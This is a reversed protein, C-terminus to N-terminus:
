SGGALANMEAALQNFRDADDPHQLALQEYARAAERYQKQSAYIRALTESVMGEIDDELDPPPVDEIIPFGYHASGDPCSIAFSPFVDPTFRQPRPPKVWGMVQRTVTLEVGLDRAWAGQTFIIHKAGYNGTETRVKGDTVSLVPENAHLEAGHQQALEACTEVVREPVLLGANPEYLGIFDEPLRFQPYNEAIQAHSLVEHPLDHDGASQISGAVFPDEPQGVYLGGTVHLLKRGSARELEDWLEYGRRLLPVYDPHEYYALRIMRSHGHHAALTSPIDFQELGMVAAGRKALHYCAASGMAGVGIVIVDYSKTRPM